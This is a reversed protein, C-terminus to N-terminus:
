CSSLSILVHMSLIGQLEIFLDLLVLLFSFLVIFNDQIVYYYLLLSYYIYRQVEM